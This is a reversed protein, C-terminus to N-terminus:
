STTWRQHIEQLYRRVETGEDAFVRLLEGRRHVQEPTGAVFTGDGGMLWLADAYRLALELDHTSILLARGTQHALDRLLHMIEIRRPLDLFATPEDLLIIPTQQALARAIMVRQREGDSLQAVARAALAECRAARMAEQVIAEDEATLRGDWRTYPTRGLAALAYATMYGVDVRDTLVVALKRARREPSLAHLPEGDIWVTGGLPPQLGCLTRMLTSKGAGNPGLLATLKGRSLSLNLGRHVVRRSTGNRYGTILDTARIASEDGNPPPADPASHIARPRTFAFRHTIM